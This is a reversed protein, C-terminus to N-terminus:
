SVILDKPPVPPISTITFQAKGWESKQDDKLVLRIKATHNGLNLPIVLPDIKYSFQGNAKFPLNMDYKDKGDIELVFKKYNTELIPNGFIDVWDQVWSIEIM